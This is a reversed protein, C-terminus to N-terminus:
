KKFYNKLLSDLLPNVGLFQLYRDYEKRKEELKEKPSSGLIAKILINKPTHEMDIFEMVKTNYGCLELSLARLADTALSSFREQLIGHNGFPSLVGKLETTPSKDIKQNIESQCCPVALIAKAGLELGKLISYDTANNCAHLSFILDVDKFVDFDKIDGKLFQLNNFNLDKAIINCHNIVDEKLDLGIIDINLNRINKLYHYLAFTLYSKGCGFDIIKMSNGILKKEQLEKLTDEIFELYRNIQRFKNFKEKSVKGTESMVGLRILFPIPTNDQLIYNKQKNHSLELTKNETNKRKISFGKKNQLVQIEQNSTVILIQKFTDIIEDLINFSDALPENKHFAKNNVFSEFQIFFDEKIQVPKLNIKKYSSEKTPNSFVGKIFNNNNISDKFINLIDNKLYKM